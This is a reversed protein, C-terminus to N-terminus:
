AATPHSSEDKLYLPIGPFGAEIRRVAERVWARRADSSGAM